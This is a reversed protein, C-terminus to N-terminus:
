KENGKFYEVTAQGKQSIGQRTIVRWITLLIIKLDLWFSWHETYWVDLAFKEPWSLNNRGNVQAWGTLGPLVDHRHMQEANYLPLYEMLLPRPGVISMEGRLINYLEPLEDLSTSRLFRGLGSLRAEDAGAGAEMTRFKYLHFPRGKYGPRQQRFLVPFGLDVWVLSAVLIYAPLLLLMGLSAILLDFLRKGPHM